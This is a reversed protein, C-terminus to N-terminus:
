MAAAKGHDRAEPSPAPPPAAPKDGADPAPSSPAAAPTADDAHKHGNSRPGPAAPNVGKSDNVYFGKGKFIIGAPTLVRKVDGNKSCLICVKLDDEDFGQRVEFDNGCHNCHYRYIPMGTDRNEGTSGGSQLGMALRIGVVRIYHM